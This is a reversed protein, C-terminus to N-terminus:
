RRSRDPIRPLRVRRRLAAGDGRTLRRGDATTPFHERMQDYGYERTELIEKTDFVIDSDKLERLISMLEANRQM